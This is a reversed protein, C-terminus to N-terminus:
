GATGRSGESAQAHVVESQAYENLRRAWQQFSSGKPGIDVREERELQSCIMQLDELLIRWSVGDVVLHHMILLLRGAKGRGYDFLAVRLLPGRGLDLSAQLEAAATEVAVRQAAQSLGSVDVETFVGETEERL